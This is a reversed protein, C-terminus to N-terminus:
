TPEGPAPARAPPDDIEPARAPMEEGDPARLRTEEADSARSRTDGSEPDSSNALPDADPSGDVAAGNEAEGRAHRGHRLEFARRTLGVARAAAAVNGRSEQLAAALLAQEFRALDIGHALAERAIREPVGATSEGLFSLEEADIPAAGAPDGGRALVLVRELANELERVNGPWPHAALRELAGASLTRPAVGSRAAIGAILERALFPLEVARERLAPVILRVVALRYYLDERFRRARALAALDSSSTAVVRVDVPIPREAGLPAVVRELLARLLKGQLAEHLREVGDLVLTGGAARAFRGTRARTAGTFAGEEHGFLEAEILTPSLASLDVEVLPGARRPSLQHLRRAARNKGSGSEGEVLVPVDSAAVRELDSRFALSAASEPASAAPEAGSM